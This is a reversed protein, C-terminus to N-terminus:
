RVCKRDHGDMGALQRYANIRTATAAGGNAAARQHLRRARSPQGSQGAHQALMRLILALNNQNAAQDPHGAPTAALAARDAKATERLPGPEGTREYQSTLAITLLMARDPHDLPATAASIRGLKAALALAEPNGTREHLIHTMAGLNSM